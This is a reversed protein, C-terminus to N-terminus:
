EKKYEFLSPYDGVNVDLDMLIYQEQEKSCKKCFLLREIRDRSNCIVCLKNEKKIIKKM